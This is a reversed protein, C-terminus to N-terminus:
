DNDNLDLDILEKDFWPYLFVPISLIAGIIVIDNSYNSVFLAVSFAIAYIILTAFYILIHRVVINENIESM